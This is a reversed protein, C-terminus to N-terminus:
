VRNILGLFKVKTKSGLVASIGSFAILIIWNIIEILLFGPRDGFLHFPETIIILFSIGLIGALLGFMLPQERFFIGLIYCILFGTLIAAIAGFVFEGLLLLNLKGEKSSVNPLLQVLVSSYIQLVGNILVYFYVLAFGGVISLPLNIFYNHTKPISWKV